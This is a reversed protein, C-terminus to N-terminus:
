EIKEMESNQSLIKTRKISSFKIGLTPKTGSNLVHTVEGEGFEKHFVRDGM